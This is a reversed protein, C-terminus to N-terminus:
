RVGRHLEARPFRTMLLERMQKPEAIQFYVAESFRRTAFNVARVLNEATTIVCLQGEDRRVPVAHFQWAQRRSVLKLCAPDIEIEELDVVGTMKLYQAVWADAVAQPEINYLREALDGFPRGLKKQVQLIHEVQRESLVGQQVLIEGIRIGQM